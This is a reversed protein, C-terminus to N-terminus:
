IGRPDLAARLGDGLYNVSLVTLSIFAGPWLVRGPFQQLYDVADHVMRGWTPVDPPFGMGLFSLASEIMIAGAVGLTASVIVPSLVNPLVHRTIIRRPPTGIAQAATIFDREKLTMVDARVIRATHMWSTLGIAGVVLLFIGTAEGLRAALAERFLLVLVLLIPLMPLALFLDTLRMLVGDLRRFYGAMVGVMTGLGVGILMAMVGVALTIRGGVMLRALLDRGLQDTGLPHGLSPGQNRNDPDIAWPDVMWLIPGISVFVLLGAFLAAGALAARNGRLREWVPRWQSRLPLLAAADTM